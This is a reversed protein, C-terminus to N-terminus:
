CEIKLERGFAGQREQVRERSSERKLEREQARERKLEKQRTERECLCVCVQLDWIVEELAGTLALFRM